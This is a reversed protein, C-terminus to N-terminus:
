MGRAIGPYFTIGSLDFNPGGTFYVAYYPRQKACSGYM